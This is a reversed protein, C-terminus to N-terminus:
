GYIELKKRGGWNWGYEMANTVPYKYTKQPDKAFDVKGGSRAGVLTYSNVSAMYKTELNNVQVPTAVAFPAKHFTPTFSKSNLINENITKPKVSIPSYASSSTTYDTKPVLPGWAVTKDPRKKFSHREGTIKFTPLM